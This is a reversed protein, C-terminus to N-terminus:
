QGPVKFGLLKGADKLQAVVSDPWDPNVSTHVTTYLSGFPTQLDTASPNEAQWTTPPTPIAEGDIKGYATDLTALGDTIKKDIDAGGPKSLIWAQFIAYAKRTGALNDRLDTMTRQAYRSEEENSSAKNVKERQEEVLSTVGDFAVAIDIVAPQWQEVLAKTDTVLRACLKTRFDISEQETKPFGAVVYGPLAKEFGVVRAPEVDSFIIREIAHMGTVGQGDFLNPDGAAGLNTLFDDYRADISADLDPFLPALAGETREYATRAKIWAAKLAAIAAADQTADWGRGTTTPAAAQLEVAAAALAQIDALLTDHVGNVAATKRQDDTETTTTGADTAPTPTSTGSSSCAATLVLAAVFLSRTKM